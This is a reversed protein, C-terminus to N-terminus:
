FSPHILLLNTAFISDCPKKQLARFFWGLVNVIKLLFSYSQMYTRFVFASASTLGMHCSPEIVRRYEKKAM